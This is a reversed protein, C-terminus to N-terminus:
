NKFPESHSINIRREDNYPQSLIHDDSFSGQLLVRPMQVWFYKQILDVVNNDLTFIGIGHSNFM